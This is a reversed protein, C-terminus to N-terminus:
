RLWQHLWGILGKKGVMKKVQKEADVKDHARVKSIQKVSMQGAWKVLGHDIWYHSQCPFSWNGISPFLSISKGHDSIRWKASNLPTVVVLGCGCCCLHSATKYERSVYIIREQLKDPIYKVFEHKLIIQASM